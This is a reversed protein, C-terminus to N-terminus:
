PAAELVLNAWDVAGGALPPWAPPVALAPATRGVVIIGCTRRLRRDIAVLERRRGAEDATAFRALREPEIVDAAGLDAAVSLVRHLAARTSGDDIVGPRLELLRLDFGGRGRAAFTTPDLWEIQARLGARFLDLQIREVLRHGFRFGRLALLELPRTM